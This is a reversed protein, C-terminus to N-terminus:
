YFAPYITDRMCGASTTPRSCEKWSSSGIPKSRRAASTPPICNGSAGARSRPRWTPGSPPRRGPGALDLRIRAARHGSVSRAPDQRLSRRCLRERPSYPELRGDSAYAWGHYPCVFVHRSAGSDDEVLRAGRHRCVNIFGRIDGAKDVCLLLPIGLADHTVFDGPKRLRATSELMIPVRQLLMRERELRESSTYVDVPQQVPEPGMDTTGRELHDLMRRILTVQTSHQMTLTGPTLRKMPEASRSRLLDELARSLEAPSSVIRDARLSTRPVDADGHTLVVSRVRAARAMSVDHASDGVMVAFEPAVGLEALVSLLHGPHPKPTPTSEKGQVSGFFHRIGLM